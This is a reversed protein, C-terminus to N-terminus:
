RATRGAEPLDLQFWRRGDPLERVGASGGHSLAIASVVSLSGPEPSALGKDKLFSTFLARGSVHDLGPGEGAITVRATDREVSVSVTVREGRGLRSAANMLATLAHRIRPPDAVVWVADPGDLDVVATASGAAARAQAVLDCRARDPAACEQVVRRLRRVVDVMGHAGEHAEATMELLEERDPAYEEDDDMMADLNALVYTAFNNVEHQAEGAFAAVEALRVSMGADSASDGGGLHLTAGGSLAAAQWEPGRVVDAVDVGPYASPVGPSATMVRGAGDAIVVQGPLQRVAALAAAGLAQARLRDLGRDLHDAIEGPSAAAPLWATVGAHLARDLGDVSRPGCLVVVLGNEAACLAAGLDDAGDVDFVMAHIAGRGIATGSEVDFGRWGLKQVREACRAPDRDIVVIRATDSPGLM